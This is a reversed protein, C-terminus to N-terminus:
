KKGVQFKNSKKRLFWGFAGGPLLSILPILEPGTPPTTFVKPPPFVPFGGKTTLGKEVCFSATDQSTQGTNTTATVLNKTRPDCTVGDPLDKADLVRAQFTFPRTENSTLNDVTFTLNRTNSDFNGPGAQFTIFTPLLDTVKTQLITTAGTNTLLIQFVVSQGPAFRSDNLNLNDVFEGTQPNQIKKNVLINGTTVCTQGGGYIPQCSVDAYVKGIPSLFLLGSIFVISLLKTMFSKKHPLEMSLVRSSLM